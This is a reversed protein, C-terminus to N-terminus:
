RMDWNIVEVTKADHAKRIRKAISTLINEKQSQSLNAWNQAVFESFPQGPLKETVIFSNKEIGLTKKLLDDATDFAHFTASLSLSGALQAEAKDLVKEPFGRKRLTEYSVGPAGKLTGRGLCYAVIEKAQGNSYGLKRLALPISQNIIKFVGGGALKKFKILAFDPEVGTTDCDMLLGITGTPAVATVQANRYGHRVGLEMARDWAQRAATLLYDPCHLPHLGIPCVSLEEYDDAKAGWAARRHNRIVRQMPERNAEYRQFPGLDSAMEASVAYAEGTLIAALAGAIACGENSDYPIGMVMLLSGLNAFGLGLTRFDHSKQAIEKSPFQAMLVSIELVITWLRVAYRFDDVNFLGTEPDHFKLLNLSALNCATDDLFMYESCPNSARIEGDAPCTHWENITTHFQLGPDACHWASLAIKQWLQRAKITRAVKGDTRNILEWDADQEVARMFESTLRVSNNCAQGSVTAYAEDDWEASYEWDPSQMHSGQALQLARYIYAAPVGDALARRVASGLFSNKTPNYRTDGVANNDGNRCAELLAAAHKKLLRSGVILSAVKYEEQVKWDTYEEIDPHDADLTVMKAARRTTGGSKIAAASRDNIKLFSLLGSSIGGGSLSEHKARIKSFNSGTGSGYKFIRAERVVLDMIGGENLLDDQVDLIFCAHPQPREYASRSRKLAGSKSDVYYHGQPPGKIGYVAYLGTNFWQPSNPAAMQSALMYRTEDYFAERDQDTDFYGYRAGWDAWTHALRHFVQEASHEGGTRGNDQPVGTKRFYKQALIDTAIQSWGAPVRVGDQRFITKGNSDIIESVREEFAICEYPGRRTFRRSIRM